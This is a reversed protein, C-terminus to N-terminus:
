PNVTFYHSKSDSLGAERTTKCNFVRRKNVANVARREREAM